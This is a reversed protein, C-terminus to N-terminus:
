FDRRQTVKNHAGSIVLLGTKALDSPWRIGFKREPLTARVFSVHLETFIGDQMSGASIGVEDGDAAELLAILESKRM